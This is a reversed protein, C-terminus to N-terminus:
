SRRLKHIECRSVFRYGMNSAYCKACQGNPGYNFCAEIFFGGWHDGQVSGHVQEFSVQEDAFDKWSQRCALTLSPPLYSFTRLRSPLPLPRCKRVECQLTEPLPLTLMWGGGFGSPLPVRFGGSGRIGRVLSSVWNTFMARVMVAGSVGSMGM